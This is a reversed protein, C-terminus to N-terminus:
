HQCSARSAGLTLADSEGTRPAPSAKPLALVRETGIGKKPSSPEAFGSTTVALAASSRGVSIPVPRAARHRQHQDTRCSAPRIKTGLPSDPSARTAAVISASDDSPVKVMSLEADGIVKTATRLM